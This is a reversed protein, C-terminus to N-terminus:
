FISKHRGSGMQGWKASLARTPGVFYAERSVFYSNKAASKASKPIKKLNDTDVTQSATKPSRTKQVVSLVLPMHSVNTDFQSM